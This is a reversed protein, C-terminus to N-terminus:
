HRRVFSVRAEVVGSCDSIRSSGTHAPATVIHESDTKMTPQKDPHSETSKYDVVVDFTTYGTGQQQDRFELYCVKSQDFVQPRYQIDPNNSAGIWETRQQGLVTGAFLLMAAAAAYLTKMLDAGKESLIGLFFRVYTAGLAAQAHASLRERKSHPSSAAFHSAKMGGELWLRTKPEDLRRPADIGARDSLRM